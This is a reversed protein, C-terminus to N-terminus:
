KSASAAAASINPGHERQPWVAPNVLLFDDQFTQLMITLTTQVKGAYGHEDAKGFRFTSWTATSSARITPDRALSVAQLLELRLLFTQFGGARDTSLALYLVPAALSESDTVDIGIQKLASEAQTRLGDETIGATTSDATLDEIVVTIKDIGRLTNIGAEGRAVGSDVAAAVSLVMLVSGIRRGSSM